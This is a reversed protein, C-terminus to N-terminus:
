KCSNAEAKDLEVKMAFIITKNHIAFTSEPYEEIANAALEVVCELFNRGSAIKGQPTYEMDHLILEGTWGADWFTYLRVNIESAYLANLISEANMTPYIYSFVAFLFM